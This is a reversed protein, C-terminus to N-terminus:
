HLLSLTTIYSLIEKKYSLQTIIEYINVKNM